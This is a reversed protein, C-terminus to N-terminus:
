FELDAWHPNHDSLQYESDELRIYTNKVRVNPTVFIFDIKECHQRDLRCFNHWTHTTGHHDETVHFADNMVFKDNTMTQYAEDRETVNFDGTVVAPSSGVIEQI